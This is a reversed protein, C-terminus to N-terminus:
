LDEVQEFNIEALDINMSTLEREAHLKNTRKYFTLSYVAGYTEALKWGKEQLKEIIDAARELHTKLATGHIRLLEPNLSTKGEIEMDWSPKGYLWLNLEIM